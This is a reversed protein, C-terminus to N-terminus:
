LIPHLSTPNSLYTQEGYFKLDAQKLYYLFKGRFKCSLVKVPLFFKKRSSVWKGISNLGGGPVICHLHPHHMLNQGWTHLISTFGLTAGLYKKDSSLEQMTEAAAKFLITYMYLEKQNQFVLTNLTDPITFVM